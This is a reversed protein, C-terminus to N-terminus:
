RAGLDAASAESVGRPAARRIDAGAGGRAACARRNTTHPRPTEADSSADRNPAKPSSLSTRTTASLPTAYTVKAEAACASAAISRTVSSRSPARSGPPTAVHRFNRPPHSRTRRTMSAESASGTTSLFPGPFPGPGATSVRAVDVPPSGGSVSTGAAGRSGGPAAGRASRDAGARGRAASFSFSFGARFLGPGGGALFASGGGADGATSGSSSGGLDRSKTTHGFPTEWSRSLSAKRSRMRSSASAFALAVSAASAALALGEAFLGEAVPPSEAVVSPGPASSSVAARTPPSSLSVCGRTADAAM